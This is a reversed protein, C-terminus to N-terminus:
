EMALDGYKNHISIITWPKWEYIGLKEGNKWYIDLM